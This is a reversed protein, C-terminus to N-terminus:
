WTASRVRRLSAADDGVHPQEELLECDRAWYRRDQLDPPTWTRRGIAGAQAWRRRAVPPVDHASGVLSARLASRAPDLLLDGAASLGGGIVVIEPDFAAVLNALGVGLWDGVTAFARLAVADGAAAADTVMPGTLQGPDEGCAEALTTPEGAVIADRGAVGPRQRQLVAGLLGRGCECAHGGPVVQM